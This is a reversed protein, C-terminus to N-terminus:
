QGNEGRKQIKRRGDEEVSSSGLLHLPVCLINGHGRLGALARTHPCADGVTRVPEGIEGRMSDGVAGLRVLLNLYGDDGTLFSVQRGSEWFNEPTAQLRDTLRCPICVELVHDAGEGQYIWGRVRILFGSEM